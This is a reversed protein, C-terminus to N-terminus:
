APLIETQISYTTKVKVRGDSSGLGGREIVDDVGGSTISQQQQQEVFVTAM